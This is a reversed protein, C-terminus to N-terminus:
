GKRAMFDEFVRRLLESQPIGYECAALKFDKKFSAPVRFNLAVSAAPEPKSLNDRVASRAPPEGKTSRNAQPPAPLDLPM